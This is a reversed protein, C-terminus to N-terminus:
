KELERHNKQKWHLQVRYYIENNVLTHGHGECDPCATQHGGTITYGTGNCRSCIKIVKDAM